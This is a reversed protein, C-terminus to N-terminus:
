HDYSIVRTVKWKGDKQQWLMINKFTGCDDQGNEQHCFRHLCIEVAGFGVIPYVELSGKVLDRRLGTDRNREFLTRFNEMTQAYDTVGGKDHYFELDESFVEKLKDPDQKNFADFMVSDMRAITDYLEQSAPTYSATQEPVRQKPTSCAAALYLLLALLSFPITKKM